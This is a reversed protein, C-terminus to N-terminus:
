QFAMASAAMFFLNELVALFSCAALLSTSSFSLAATWAATSEAECSNRLSTLFDHFPM